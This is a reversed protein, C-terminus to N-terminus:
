FPFKYRFDKIKAYERLGSTVKSQIQGRKNMEIQKKLNTLQAEDPKPPEQISVLQVVFVGTSGQIPKSVENPKMGFVRGIVKPENGIGPAFGSAFTVNEAKSTYAGNGYGTKLKELDTGGIQSLKEIIRKAKVENLVKKQISEKVDSLKKYGIERKTDVMAVVFANETDIVPSVQGEESRLGWRILERANELGAIYSAHPQLPQSVRADLKMSTAVETFSEKSKVSGAFKMSQQELNRLTQSGPAIERAVIALRYSKDSRDTIEVIHYGQNSKIPGIISGVTAKQIAKDFDDGYTGTKYWGLDGSMYKSQQDDSNQSVMETFNTKNVKKKLETAKQLAAASDQATFGNVRILIHRIKSRSLTDKRINSVKILKYFNGDQYPGIVAGENAGSVKDQINFDLDPFSKYVWESRQESKAAAFLSDDKTEQLETALKSVEALTAASDSASPVKPFVVYKLIVEENNQRFEEKH